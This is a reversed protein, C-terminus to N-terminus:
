GTKLWYFIQNPYFFLDPAMYFFQSIKNVEFPLKVISYVALPLNGLTLLWLGFIVLPGTFGALVPLYIKSIKGKKNFLVFAVGVLFAVVLAPISKPLVILSLAYFLGALFGDKAQLKRMWKIQWIVGLLVLLAAPNDPRIELFKDFPLPLFALITGALIALWSRRVQWFLYSIALIDGAFVVFSLVRGAILPTVGRGLLFLPALFWQFGPPVYLFFDIFPKQGQFVQYAWHLYAYEDVDFYRVLGLQWHWGLFVILLLLSFVPLIIRIIKSIKM